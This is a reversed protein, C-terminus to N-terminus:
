KRAVARCFQAAHALVSKRHTEDLAYLIKRLFNEFNLLCHLICWLSSCTFVCHRYDVVSVEWTHIVGCKSIWHSRLIEAPIGVVTCTDGCPYGCINWNDGCPYCGGCVLLVLIELHTRIEAPIGKGCLGSFLCAERLFTGCRWYLISGFHQIVYWYRRLSVRWYM